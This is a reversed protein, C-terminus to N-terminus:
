EELILPKRKITTLNVFVCYRKHSARNYLLCTDIFDCFVLSRNGTKNKCKVM